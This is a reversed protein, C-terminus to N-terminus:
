ATIKYVYTSTYDTRVYPINLANLNNLVSQKPHGYLNHYGCSIIALEPNMQQLFDFCSSTDSGHHGVKLIDCTMEPYEKMLEREIKIPADGMILFSTDMIKFSYVASTYNRDENTFEKFPNIDSITFDGFTMTEEKGGRNIKDIPFHEQLSDLAGVHDFDEHTTLVADLKNIKLKHFYKILDEQALDVFLSGGTDVLINKQKYRILTSDGQGVDIYHIEYYDKKDPMVCILLTAILLMTAIRKENKLRLQKFAIISVVLACYIFASIYSYNGVAIVLSTGSFNVLMNSLGGNLIELFPRVVPGLFVLYDLLYVVSFIPAALYQFILAMINFAHESLMHFPLILIFFILAVKLRVKKERKSFLSASFSFIILTPYIYYFGMNLVYFPHFFLIFLGCLSIKEVYNLKYAPKATGVKTIIYMILIREISLSFESFIYILSLLVICFTGLSKEKFKRKGLDYITYFLFSIHINSSSILYSIGLNNAASYAQSQSASDKFLMSGILSKAESSYGSLIASKFARLKLPSAFVREIKYANFSTYAGYSHLYKPFDFSEQYHYFMLKSGYGSAKVIDGVEYCNNDQKV